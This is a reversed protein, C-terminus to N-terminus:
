APEFAYTVIDDGGPTRAIADLTIRMPMGIKLGAFSDTKIRTEVIIEGPLEVYGVAYPTFNDQAGIFPPKPAFRQVTFSWLTGTRGLEVREFGEALPGTPFPFAYAGTRTCRGGILRPGEASFSILDDAVAVQAM